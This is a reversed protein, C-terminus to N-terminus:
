TEGFMGTKHFVVQETHPLLEAHWCFHQVVNMKRPMQVAYFATPLLFWFGQGTFFMLAFGVAAYDSAQRMAVSYADNSKYLHIGNEHTQAGSFGSHDCEASRTECIFSAAKWILSNQLFPNVNLMHYMSYKNWKTNDLYDDRDVAWKGNLWMHFRENLIPKKPMQYDLDAQSPLKMNTHQSDSKHYIYTHNSNDPGGGGFARLSQQTLRVARQSFLKPQINLM